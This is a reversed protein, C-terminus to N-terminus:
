KLIVTVSGSLRLTIFYFSIINTNLKLTITRNSKFIVYRAAHNSHESSVILDKKGDGDFDFKILKHGFRAQRERGVLCEDSVISEPSETQSSDFLSRFSYKLIQGSELYLFYSTLIM